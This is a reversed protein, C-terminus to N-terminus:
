PPAWTSPEIKAGLQKKIEEFDQRNRSKKLIRGTKRTEEFDQRKRTEKFGRRNKKTEEFDRRVFTTTV